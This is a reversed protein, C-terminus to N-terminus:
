LATINKLKVFKIFGDLLHIIHGKKTYEMKDLEELRQLM